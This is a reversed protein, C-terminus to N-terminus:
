HIVWFDTEKNQLTVFLLRGVTFNIELKKKDKLTHHAYYAYTHFYSRQGVKGCVKSKALGTQVM